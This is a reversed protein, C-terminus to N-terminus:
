YILDFLKNALDIDLEKLIKYENLASSKDRIMLYIIGLNYHANVHEPDIRIAQKNAEIAKTYYGLEGYIIGLNYHPSICNPNIHIAQKYAEIAKTYYGLEDFSNGLNNYADVYDPNIRIAQKYAEIAKTYVGLIEYCFGIKFYAWAKLSSIDTKIAIELYPLAKEYERKDIFYLAKNVAEYAYDSDKKSKEEQRFLEETTFTREEEILNLKAIRESPIAFNLSQGEVIQFTAIGIVEGKMDLVPSGSSGPSIPATIQILKGYGPVERIASIIGDSVTKELGLPSGYVLIREGVEPVTASLSLPHVYKSPINVSLRIIDSQEDEAVIYTIPYTKGGSTKVEASSAGKLVHYNTIINGNQSIFFGSGLKLFEGKDNYTFIIVTSPEIRKIISPLNETLKEIQKPLSPLVPKSTPVQITKGEKVNELLELSFGNKYVEKAYYEQEEEPLNQLLDIFEEEHQDLEELSSLYFSFISPFKDKIYDKVYFSQSCINLYFFCIIAILILLYRINKKM